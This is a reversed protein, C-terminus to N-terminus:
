RPSPRRHLRINAYTPSRGRVDLTEGMSSFYLGPAFEALLLTQYEACEAGYMSKPLEIVPHDGSQRLRVESVPLGRIKIRCSGHWREPPASPHMLTSDNKYRVFGNWLSQLYGPGYAGEPVVRHREREGDDDVEIVDSGVLRPERRESGEVFLRGDSVLVRLPEGIRGVYEGVLHEAERRSVQRRGGGGTSPPRSPSPIRRTSGLVLWRAIERSVEQQLAHDLSNTLVVAGLSVSPIWFLSCLFGFGAGGHNYVVIGRDWEDSEVGLGYGHPQGQAPQSVRYSEELLSDAVPGEGARRHFQVYRLADDVSAYPGGAPVMPVRVPLSRNARRSLEWHGIAHNPETAIRRMHFTTRDLQLPTFLERRAYEGFPVGVARQLAYGALDIGLNSYEFNRGVPFRL